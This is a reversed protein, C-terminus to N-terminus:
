QNSYYKVLREIGDELMVTAEFGLKEKSKTIDALTTQVYNKIPNEIYKAKINKNLKKNILNIMENISTSKGTGVNFIGQIQKKIALHNAKAVDKVYTFDRTQSGDGYVIPAEDKMISWLFQSILNAYKGKGREHPGYVSFYRLGTIKLGYLKNYLEGIREIEYRGETYFDKIYPTMDEKHPPTYGNYISSTSAYVINRVEKKTYGCTSDLVLAIKEKAM